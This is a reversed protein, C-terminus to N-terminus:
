SESREVEVEVVLLVKGGMLMFFGVFEDVVFVLWGTDSPEPSEAEVEVVVLLVDGVLTVIEFFEEVVVFEVMSISRGTDPPAAVVVKVVLVTDRVLMVVVDLVVVEITPPGLWGM